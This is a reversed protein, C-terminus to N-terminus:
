CRLRALSLRRGARQAHLIGGGRFGGSVMVSLQLDEAFSRTSIVIFGFVTDFLVYVNVQRREFEVEILVRLVVV